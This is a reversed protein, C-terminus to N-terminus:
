CLLWDTPAGEEGLSGRSTPFLFVRLTSTTTFSAQNLRSVQFLTLLASKSNINLWLLFFLIHLSRIFTREWDKILVTNKWISEPRSINMSIARSLKKFPKGSLKSRQRSSKVKKIRELTWRSKRLAVTRARFTARLRTYSRSELSSKRFYSSLLRRPTM